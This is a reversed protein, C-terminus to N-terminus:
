HMGRFSGGGAGGAAFPNTTRNGARSNAAPASSSDGVVIADGPDLTAGRLPTVAAQAGSSLVVKVPVRVLAGNRQVYLRSRSGISPTAAAAGSSAGWPSATIAQGTVGASSQNTQPNANSSTANTQPRRHHRSMTGTPPTYSLAVLPVVLASPAKATAITANATMGPLLTGDRNDVLVVTTYTVVNQTVVSNQRVQSVIGHFVRNPYALVSFDVNEGTRVAGIDPEGVALDVEMKGLNQAISFLTPTQFSAAVTQGITAARSIVTGDVPSTIVTKALNQQATAVNAQQIAIASQAAAATAAQQTATSRATGTAALQAASQDVTAAAQSM